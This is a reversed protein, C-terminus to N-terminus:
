AYLGQKLHSGINAALAPKIVITWALWQETGTLSFASPNDSAAALSRRASHSNPQASGTASGSSVTTLNTYSTPGGTASEDDDGSVAVAIFLNDDSGWGATVSDPDPATSGTAEAVFTSIDIDTSVTGAWGTIRYMHASMEEAAATVVDVTGGGETGAAELAYIGGYVQNNPSRKDLLDWGGPTTQVTANDSAAILILLDGANVTAPFDCLHQTTATAFPTETVSEVVPFTM